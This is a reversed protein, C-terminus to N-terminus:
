SVWLKMVASLREWWRDRDQVPNIWYKGKWGEEQLDMKTILNGDVGLDKLHDRKRLDEWSFGTHVEGM